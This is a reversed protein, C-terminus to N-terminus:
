KAGGKAALAKHKPATVQQAGTQTVLVHGKEVKNGLALGFSDKWVFLIFHKTGKVPIGALALGMAKAADVLRKPDTCKLVLIRADTKHPKVKVSEDIFAGDNTDLVMVQKLTPLKAPAATHKTMQQATTKTLNHM